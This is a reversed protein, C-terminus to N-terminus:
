APEPDSGAVTLELELQEIRSEALALDRSLDEARQDAAKAEGFAAKLEHWMLNTGEAAM